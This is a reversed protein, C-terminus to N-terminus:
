CSAYLCNSIQAKGNRKQTHISIYCALCKKTQSGHKRSSAQFCQGSLHIFFLIFAAITRKCDRINNGIDTCCSRSDGTCYCQHSTVINCKCHTCYKCNKTNDAVICGLFFEKTWDSLFWIVRKRWLFLFGKHHFKCNDHNCCHNNHCNQKCGTNQGDIYKCVEHTGCCNENWYDIQNVNDLARFCFFFFRFM